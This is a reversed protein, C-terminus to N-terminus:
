FGEGGALTRIANKMEPTLEGPGAQSSVAARRPPVQDPDRQSIAVELANALFNRRAVRNGKHANLASQPLSVTWRKTGRQITYYMEGDAGIRSGVIETELNITM